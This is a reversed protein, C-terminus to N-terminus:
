DVAEVSLVVRSFADSSRQSEPSSIKLEIIEGKKLSSRSTCDGFLVKPASTELSAKLTFDPCEAKSEPAVSVAVSRLRSRPESSTDSKSLQGNQVARDSTGMFKYKKSEPVEFYMYTYQGAEFFIEQPQGLSLYNSKPNNAAVQADIASDDKVDGQSNKKCSLTLLLAFMSVASFVAKSRAPKCHNRM